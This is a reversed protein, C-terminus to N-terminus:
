TMLGKNSFSEKILSNTKTIFLSKLKDVHDMYLDM